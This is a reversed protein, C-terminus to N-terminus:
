HLNLDIGCYMYKNQIDVMHSSYISTAFFPLWPIGGLRFQVWHIAGMHSEVWLIAGMRSEVWPIAGMCSQVWLIAGILTGGMSHM